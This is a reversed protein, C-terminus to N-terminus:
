VSFGFILSLSAREWVSFGFIPSLSARRLVSFGFNAIAVGKEFGFIRFNAITVGKEFGFQLLVLMRGSVRCDTVGPHRLFQESRDKRTSLTGDPGEPCPWLPSAWPDGDPGKAGTEIREKRTTLDADSGEPGARRPSAWHDEDAGKGGQLQKDGSDKQCKDSSSQPGPVIPAFGSRSAGFAGAPSRYATPTYTRTTLKLGVVLAQMVLSAM